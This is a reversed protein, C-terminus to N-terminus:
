WNDVNDDNMEPVLALVESVNVYELSQNISSESCDNSQSM